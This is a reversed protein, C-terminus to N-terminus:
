LTHADLFFFFFDVSPGDRTRVEKKKADTVVGLFLIDAEPDEGNSEVVRSASALGPEGVSSNLIRPPAAM